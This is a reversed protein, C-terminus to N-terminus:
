SEMYPIKLSRIQKSAKLRDHLSPNFSRKLLEPHHKGLYISQFAMYLTLLILIVISVIFFSIVGFILFFPKGQLAFTAAFLFTSGVVLFLWLLRSLSNRKRPTKMETM